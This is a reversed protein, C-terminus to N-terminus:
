DYQHSDLSKNRNMIAAHIWHDIMTRGFEYSAIADPPTMGERIRETALLQIAELVQQCFNLPERL